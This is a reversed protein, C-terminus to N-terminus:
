APGSRSSRQVGCALLRVQSVKQPLRVVDVPKVPAKVDRGRSSSSETTSTAAEDESSSGSASPSLEESATDDEDSSLTATTAADAGERHRLSSSQHVGDLSEAGALLSYDIATANLVAMSNRHPAALFTLHSLPLRTSSGPEASLQAFSHSRYSAVRSQLHLGQIFGPHKFPSLGRAAEDRGM